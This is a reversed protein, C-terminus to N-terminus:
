ACDDEDDTDVKLGAAEDEEDWTALCEECVVMGEPNDTITERVCVDCRVVTYESM